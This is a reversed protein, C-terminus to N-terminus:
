GLSFELLRRLDSVEQRFALVDVHLLLWTVALMGAAQLAFVSAYALPSGGGAGIVLDHLAGSAVSSGL